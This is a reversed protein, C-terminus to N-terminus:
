NVEWLISSDEVETNYIIQEDDTSQKSDYEDVLDIIQAKIEDNAIIIPSFKGSRLKKSPFNLIRIESEKKVDKILNIFIDSIKIAGYDVVLAKSGTEFEHVKVLKLKLPQSFTGVQVSSSISSKAAYMTFLKTKMEHLIKSNWNIKYLPLWTNNSLQKSPELVQFTDESEIYSVSMGKFELKGYKFDVIGITTVSDYVFKTIEVGGDHNHSLLSQLEEPVPQIAPMISESRPDEFMNKKQTSDNQTEINSKEEMIVDHPDEVVNISSSETEQEMIVQEELTPEEVSMEKKVAENSENTLEEINPIFTPLLNGIAKMRAEQEPISMGVSALTVANEDSLADIFSQKLNLSLLYSKSESYGM